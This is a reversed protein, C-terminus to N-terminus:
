RDEGSMAGACGFQHVPHEIDDHDQLAQVPGKLDNAASSKQKNPGACDHRQRGGGSCSFQGLIWV